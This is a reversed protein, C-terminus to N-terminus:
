RGITKRTYLTRIVRGLAATAAEAYKKSLDESMRSTWLRCTELVIYRDIKTKATKEMDTDMDPLDFMLEGDTKSIVHALRVSATLTGVADNMLGDIIGGDQSTPWISDYLSTGDDAYERSASNAIEQRFQETLADKDIVYKM